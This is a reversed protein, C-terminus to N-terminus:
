VIKANDANSGSRTVRERYREFIVAAALRSRVKLKPFVAKLHAAITDPSLQLRGGIADNTLDSHVLELIQFQRATLKSLPFPLRKM